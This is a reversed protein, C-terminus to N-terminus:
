PNGAASAPRVALNAYWTVNSTRHDQPTQVLSLWVGDCRQAPVTFRVAFRAWTNAAGGPSASTTALVKRDAICRVQWALLSPDGDQPRVEGSLLYDGPQPAMAQRLLDTASYGDYEVRLANTSAREPAPDM